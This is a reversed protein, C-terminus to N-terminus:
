LRPTAIYLIDNQYIGAPQSQSVNIKYTIQSQALDNALEGTMVLEADENKSINAFKKYFDTDSFGEECSQGSINDCRYGFGYTLPSVWAAATSKSCNGSDCTTDPVSAGAPLVRPEHSESALVQYGPASGTSVTLINTRSIPEGPKIEGFSIKTSSISFSFASRAKLYQFGAKVKYSENSGESQATEGSTFTVKTGENQASGSFSNFNGGKIIYDENSMTQAQADLGSDYSFIMVCLSALTLLLCIRSLLSLIKM